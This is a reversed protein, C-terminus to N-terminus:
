ASTVELGDKTTAKKQMTGQVLPMLYNKALWAVAPVCVADGFGFLAQSARKVEQLNYRGAGMLRAYELSTMWRVRLKGNGAEVLAQKSSGGGATRLCGAIDDARIEWMPVGARTRRYATRHSPNGKKRRLVDLRKAQVPSLSAEFKAVRAADWWEEVDAEVITSLGGVATDPVEPLRAEHTILSADSFPARLWDPRLKPNAGQESVPANRAGVLFLRPRSQPVFWRADLTLVDVSYGLENMASIAAALDEGGHSTALGVVNELTLVAPRATEDLEGIVRTFQYFMSSRQGKMGLRAGALSVDQCPSSAWALSLEEPMHHGKALSVDGLFYHSSKDPDTATNLDEPQGFQAQYMEAKAREIDNAWGIQFGAQELGMRALGIGAFFEVAVPGLPLAQQDPVVTLKPKPM